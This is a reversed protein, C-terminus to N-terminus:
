GNEPSRLLGDFPFELKANKLAQELKKKEVPPKVNEKQSENISNNEAKLTNVNSEASQNKNESDMNGGNENEKDAQKGLLYKFASPEMLVIKFSGDRIDTYKVALRYPGARLGLKNSDSPCFNRSSSLWLWGNQGHARYEEGKQKSVQHKLGLTYKVFTMWPRLREDDEEREKRERKESKKKDERMQSTIKKFQTHGLSDKWVNLLISPKICCKIVTLARAFDRPTVSQSVAGVWPKRLLAWNPHMFTVSIERELQIMTQRLTNVLQSRNGYLTGIWKFAAADTLSFKHSMHTRKVREDNSQVKTLAAPNTTYQNIYSRFTNEQGLKFYLTGSSIHQLTSRTMRENLRLENERDNEVTKSIPLSGTQARTTPQM